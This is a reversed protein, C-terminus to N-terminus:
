LQKEQLYLGIKYQAAAAFEGYPANKIVTRFIEIVDYDGGVITKILTNREDKGELLENGIEYQRKIIEAARESFPYKDIVTQYEKFARVLEGQEQQCRGIYYQAEAAERAKPYHKILKQMEQITKAWDQAQYSELAVQLQEQPTEKVAYKPNVWKNTEPTWVWFASTEAVGTFLFFIFLILIKKM